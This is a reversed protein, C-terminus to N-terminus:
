RHIGRDLSQKRREETKRKEEEARERERLIYFVLKSTDRSELGHCKWVLFFFLSSSRCRMVLGLATLRERFGDCCFGACRGDKRRWSFLFIFIFLEM